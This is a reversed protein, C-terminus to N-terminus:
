RPQSHRQHRAARRAYQGPTAPRGACPAQEEKESEEAVMSVCNATQWHGYLELRSKAFLLLLPSLCATRSGARLHRCICPEVSTDRCISLLVSQCRSQEIPSGNLLMVWGDISALVVQPALRKSECFRLPKKIAAPGA